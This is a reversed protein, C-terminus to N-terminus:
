NSQRVKQHKVVIGVALIRCCHNYIFSHTHLIPPIICVPSVSTSPFLGTGTHLAIGRMSQLNRGRAKVNHHLYDLGGGMYIACNEQIIYLCEVRVASYDCEM